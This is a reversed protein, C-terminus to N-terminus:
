GDCYKFFHDCLDYATFQDTEMCIDTGFGTLTDNYQGCIGIQVRKVPLLKFGSSLAFRLSKSSCALQLTPRCKERLVPSTGTKNYSFSVKMDFREYM